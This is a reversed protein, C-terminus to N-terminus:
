PHCGLDECDNTTIESTAIFYEGDFTEGTISAETDNCLLGTDQTAFALLLDTDGDVEADVPWPVAINPARGPGFQVSDPNIRTADFDVPDGSETDSTLMAVVIPNNSAPKIDNKVSYPNVDMDVRMRTGIRRMLIGQLVSYSKGGVSVPDMDVYPRAIIDGNNNIAIFNLGLNIGPSMIATQKYASLDVIEDMYMTPSNKGLKMVARAGYVGILTGSDNMGQIYEIGPVTIDNINAPGVLRNFPDTSASDTVFSLHDATNCLEVFFGLDDEVCDREYFGGYADNSETIGEALIFRRYAPDGVDDCWSEMSVDQLLGISFLINEKRYCFYDTTSLDAGLVVGASNIGIPDGRYHERGDDTADYSLGYESSIVGLRREWVGYGSNFHRIEVAIDGANNIDGADIVYPDFGEGPGPELYSFDGDDYLFSRSAGWDEGVVQGLDNLGKACCPGIDQMTGNGYLFSRKDANGSGIPGTHGVVQGLDNIDTPQTFSVDPGLVIIEYVPVEPEPQPQVDGDAVVWPLGPLTTCNDAQTMDFSDAEIREAFVGSGNVLPRGSIPTDYLYCDQLLNNFPGSNSLGAGEDPSLANGLTVAFMHELEGSTSGQNPNNLSPLRWSTVGLYGFGALYNTFEAAYFGDPSFGEPAYYTYRHSVWASTRLYDADALWTIDLVTDYWADTEGDQDLDRPQLTTEWTGQGPVPDALVPAAALLSAFLAIGTTLLPQLETHRM